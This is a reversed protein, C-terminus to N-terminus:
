RAVADAILAQGLALGGDGSPVCHHRYVDVQLSALCRLSASSLRDNQFCGGTLVVPLKGHDRTALSVLRATIEALTEHFRAAIVASDHGGLLDDVVSRVLPRLDVQWPTAGTEISFPYATHEGPDAAHEVAMAVQGEYRAVARGLVLAGIADFYRGVGHARPANLGDAIMRRVVRVETSSRAALVAIRDIPPAGDFADDVLALAVRWPEHIARDGGALPVPRFTAIRAAREFSALLLEGGWSAGDTGLGTGDWAIGIAPGEIAHEAMASAVHAHHHQVPVLLAGTAAAHERAFRTSLYEPHLDCAVLEPRVSLYREMRAVMAGLAEYSEITDLDGVHPGLVVADGVGIAFTNKLHAGTALAPRAFARHAAISRPVYGRARRLVQPAGAIVRAISDDARADIARDHVLFRDAVGALRSVAEDDDIAIPEDSLNGSTMVLPRGADHLLLHHLPTYALVLGLTPCDPSVEPALASELARKVIVIPREVSALLRREEQSLIALREAAVLDAVMVALPKAERRKRARLSAVAASSTADCALHFGGLGKVAVVLGDRLAAAAGAIPDIGELAGGDRDLFTLKPGCQPCANPQAHFRRDAPTRVERECDACMPFSAMTTSPRDYPVDRAITFRPGCLTCNTFAYRHRRNAPDFIEAVCEACTGLDPPISVRLTDTEGGESPAIYFGTAVPAESPIECAELRDISAAPPAELRARRLFADLEAATGYAEVVVGQADNWVSGDLGISTALRVIWPRFGVGQVTGRFSLRRGRRESAM